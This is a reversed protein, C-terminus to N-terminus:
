PHCKTKQYLPQPAPCKAKYPISNQQLFKPVWSPIQAWLIIQLDKLEWTEGDLGELMMIFGGFLM